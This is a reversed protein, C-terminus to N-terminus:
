HHRPQTYFRLLALLLQRGRQDLDSVKETINSITPQYIETKGIHAEVQTDKVPSPVDQVSAAYVQSSVVWSVAICTHRLTTFISM